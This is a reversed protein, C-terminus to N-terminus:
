PEWILALVGGSIGLLIGIGMGGMSSVLSFVSFAIILGGWTVHQKPNAYLMIAAAVVVIGFVVGLINILPTYSGFGWSHLHGGWNHMMWDMWNWEWFTLLHLFGGLIIFVGSLLSLVFANIPKRNSSM